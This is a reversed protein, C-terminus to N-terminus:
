IRLPLPPPSIDPLISIFDLVPRLAKHSEDLPGKGTSYVLVSVLFKALAFALIVLLAIVAVTTETDYGTDLLSQGWNLAVEVCPCLVCLVLTLALLIHFGKRTM